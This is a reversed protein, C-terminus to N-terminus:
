QMWVEVRRSRSRAIASGSGLSLEDCFGAVVSIKLSPSRLREAVAVARAQALLCNRQRDGTRDAFGFLMLRKDRRSTDQFFSALREIDQTGKNDLESSDSEFRFDLSLREADMTLEQYREPAGPLAVGAPAAAVNQGIFGDRSVIAQGAPSLVFKVFLHAWENHSHVPLYLYLRRSLVYEETGVSLLDPGIAPGDADALALAKNNRVYPLGIFGLAQSDSAVEDSLKASDQVPEARECMQDANLVLDRVTKYTGSEDNRRILRIPGPKGGVESWDTIQCRLIKALDSVSLRSVPNQRNVIFAVGDVGIVSESSSSTMDGFRSLEGVETATIRRSSMGIDATGDRLDSFATESGAARITVIIPPKGPVDGRLESGDGNSSELRKAASADHARLFGEILDPALTSGITNSGSIRLIIAGEAQPPEGPPIVVPLPKKAFWRINWVIGGGLLLAILALLAYKGVSGRSRRSRVPRSGDQMRLAEAERLKANGETELRKIRAHREKEEDVAEICAQAELEEHQYKTEV